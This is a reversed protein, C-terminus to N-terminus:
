GDTGEDEDETLRSMDETVAGEVAADECSFVCLSNDESDSVDLKAVLKVCGVTVDGFGSPEIEGALCARRAEAIAESETSANLRWCSLGDRHHIVM